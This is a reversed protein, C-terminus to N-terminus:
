KEIQRGTKTAANDNPPAEKPKTHTAQENDCREVMSDIIGICKGTSERINQYRDSGAMAMCRIEDGCVDLEHDSPFLAQYRRREFEELMEHLTERLATAQASIAQMVKRRKIGEPQDLAKHQRALLKVIRAASTLITWRWQFSIFNM